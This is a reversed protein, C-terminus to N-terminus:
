TSVLNRHPGITDRVVQLRRRDDALDQGVKIKFEDRGAEMYQRCLARIKEDPYGLWGASVSM